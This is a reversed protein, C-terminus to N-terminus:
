SSTVEALEAKHVDLAAQAKALLEKTNLLEVRVSELAADKAVDAESSHQKESVASELEKNAADLQTQLRVISEAASTTASAAEQRCKELAATAAQYESRASALDADLRALQKEWDSQWDVCCMVGCWVVGCRVVNDCSTVCVCVCM